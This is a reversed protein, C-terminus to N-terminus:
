LLVTKSPVSGLFGKGLVQPGEPRTALHKVKEREIKGHDLHEELFQVINMAEWRITESVESVNAM